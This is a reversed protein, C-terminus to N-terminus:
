CATSGTSAAVFKFVNEWEGQGEINILAQESSPGTPPPPAEAGPAQDTWPTPTASTTSQIQVQSEGAAGTIRSAVTTMREGYTREPVLSGARDECSKVEEEIAALRRSERVNAAICAAAQHHREVLASYRSALPEVALFYAGLAAM